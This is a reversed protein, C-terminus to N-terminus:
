NNCVDANINGSIGSGLKFGRKLVKKKSFLLIAGRKLETQILM